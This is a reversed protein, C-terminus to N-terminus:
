AADAYDYKPVEVNFDLDVITRRISKVENDEIIEPYKKAIEDLVATLHVVGGVPIGLESFLHKIGKITLGAFSSQNSNPYNDEIITLVGNLRRECMSCDRLIIRICDMHRDYHASPQFPANKQAGFVDQIDKKTIETNM